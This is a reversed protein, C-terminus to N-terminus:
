AAQVEVFGDCDINAIPMAHEDAIINEYCYCMGASNCSCTRFSLSTSGVQLARFTLTIIVMSGNFANEYPSAYPGWCEAKSYQGHTADFDNDIGRGFQWATYVADPDVDAVTKNFWDFGVGGWEPPTNVQAQTCELIERNWLLNIQWGAMDTVNNIWIEVKFTQGLTVIVNEPAITVSTYVPELATEKATQTTTQAVLQTFTQNPTWDLSGTEVEIPLENEIPPATDTSKSVGALNSEAQSHLFDGPSPMLAVAIVALSIIGLVIIKKLL